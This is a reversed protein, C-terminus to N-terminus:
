KRRQMRRTLAVDEIGEQTIYVGLERGDGAVTWFSRWQRVPTVSPNLEQIVASSAGSPTKYTRRANMSLGKLIRFEHTRANYQGEIRKMQYIAYVPVIYRDSPWGQAVEAKEFDVVRLPAEPSYDVAQPALNEFMSQLTAWLDNTTWKGDETGPYAGLYERASECLVVYLAHDVSDFKIGSERFLRAALSAVQERIDNSKEPDM